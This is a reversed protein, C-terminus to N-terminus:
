YKVFPLISLWLRRKRRRWRAREHGDTRRIERNINNLEIRFDRLWGIFALMGIAGIVVIVIILLAM